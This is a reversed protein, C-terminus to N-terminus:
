GCEYAEYLYLNELHYEYLGPKSNKMISVHAASFYYKIINYKYFIFYRSVQNVLRLLEAEKPTKILRSLGLSQDLYTSNLTITTQIPLQAGNLMYIMTPNLQTLVDGFESLYNRISLLYKPFIQDKCKM